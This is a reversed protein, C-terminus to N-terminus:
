PAPPAPPVPPLVVTTVAGPGHQFVNGGWSMGPLMQVFVAWMPNNAVATLQWKPTFIQSLSLQLDSVLSFEAFQYMHLHRSHYTEDQNYVSLNIDFDPQESEIFNIDLACVVLKGTLGQVMGAAFGETMIQGPAMCYETGNLNLVRDGVVNLGQHAYANYSVAAGGGVIVADGTLYDWDIEMQGVKSDVAWVFCFGKYGKYSRIQTTVEDADKRSYAKDTQWFFPEKATLHIFFDEKIFSKHDTPTASVIMMGQLWVDSNGRNVIDIITKAAGVNDVLPFVLLSGEETPACLQAQAFGACAVLALLILGFKRM